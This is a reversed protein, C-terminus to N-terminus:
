TKTFHVSFVPQRSSLFFFMNFLKYVELFHDNTLQVKKVSFLVMTLYVHDSRKTCKSHFVNRWLNSGHLIEHNKPIFHHHSTNKNNHANISWNVSQMNILSLVNVGVAEHWLAPTAKSPKFWSPTATLSLISPRSTGGREAPYEESCMIAILKLSLPSSHWGPALPILGLWEM